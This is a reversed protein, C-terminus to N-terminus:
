THSVRLSDSPSTLLALYVWSLQLSSLFSIPLIYHTSSCCNPITSIVCHFFSYLCDPPYTIVQLLVTLTNGIKGLRTSIVFSYTGLAIFTLYRRMRCRKDFEVTPTLTLLMGMRGNCSLRPQHPMKSTCCSPPTTPQTLKNTPRCPTSHFSAKARQCSLRGARRRRFIIDSSKIEVIKLRRRRGRREM